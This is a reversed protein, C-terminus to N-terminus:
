QKPTTELGGSKPGKWMSEVELFVCSKKKKKLKQAADKAYATGRIQFEGSGGLLMM